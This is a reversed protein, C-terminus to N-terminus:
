VEEDNAEATVGGRAHIAQLCGNHSLVAHRMYLKAGNGEGPITQKEITESRVRRIPRLTIGGTPKNGVAQIRQWFGSVGVEIGMQM